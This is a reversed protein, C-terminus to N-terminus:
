PTTTPITLAPETTPPTTTITPLPVPTPGLVQIWSTHGADRLTFPTRGFLTMAHEDGEPAITLWWIAEEDKFIDRWQLLTEEDEIPLTVSLIASEGPPLAALPRNEQRWEATLSPLANTNGSLTPAPLPCIGSNEVTWLLQLAFDSPLQNGTVHRFTPKPVLQLNTVRYAYSGSRLCTKEFDARTQAAVVTAAVFTQQTALVAATADVYTAREAQEATALAAVATVTAHAEQAIATRTHDFQTEAASLQQQNQQQLASLSGVLFIALLLVIRIFPQRRRRRRKSDPTQLLAVSVNDDADRGLAFSVLTRAAKDGEQTQLTRIIESPKTFPHGSAGHKVLGDSCLLVSDGPKLRLGQVGRQRAIRPEKTNVYFGIDVSFQRRSGVYRVLAEARPNAAAAGSSMRGMQPMMEAFTHDLTLQTLKGNRCLYIRSDGANAIYLRDNYVAAVALTSSGGGNHVAEACVADNAAIFALQLLEPVDQSTSENKLSHLVMDVALQAAREGRNAGGVGDAVMAVTLALGSRTMVETIVVRDEYIQRQGIDFYQGTILNNM